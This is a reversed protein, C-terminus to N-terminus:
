ADGGRTAALEERLQHVEKELLATALIQRREAIAKLLRDFRPGSVLGRDYAAALRAQAVDVEALTRMPGLDLAEGAEDDGYIEPMRKKAMFIALATEHVKKVIPNGDDDKVVQGDHLIFTDTGDRARQLLSRELDGNAKDIAERWATAFEPDRDRAQYAAQRTVGARSAAHRVSGTETLDEIFDPQWPLAYM